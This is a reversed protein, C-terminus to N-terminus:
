RAGPPPALPPPSGDPPAIPPPVPAPGSPVPAPGAPSPTGAAAPKAPIILKDGVKIRTTTLNNAKQIASATVGYKKGIKTLNDGSVVKHTVTGGIAAGASGAAEPSGASPSVPAAEPIVVKDGVKMRTPNVTPNAKEIAKWSVGFKKGLTYFSDGQQISYEKVGPPPLPTVPPALDVPPPPPLPTAGAVPTDMPPNTPAGLDPPPLAGGVPPPAPDTPTPPLAAGYDNAPPPPPPPTIPDEQKCGVALLVTLSVACIALSVYVALQFRNRAARAAQEFQSGQPTLPNTSNM